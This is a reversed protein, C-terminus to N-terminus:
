SPNAYIDECNDQKALIKTLKPPSFRPGKTVKGSADPMSKTMNSRHVEDFFPELDIGMEVATGFVFYALDVLADIQEIFDEELTAKCFESAEENYYRIRAIAALANYLGLPTRAYPLQYREHFEQVQRQMKVM